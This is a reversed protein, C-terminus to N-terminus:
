AVGGEKLDGRRPGIRTFTTAFGGIELKKARGIM